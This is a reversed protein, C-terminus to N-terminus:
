IRYKCINKHGRHRYKGAMTDADTKYGIEKKAGLKRLEERIRMVDERDTWDYTYVCIVHNIKGTDKNVKVWRASAVKAKNGLSGNETAHKIKAWIEDVNEPLVFILWKGSNENDQPYTDLNELRLAYIWESRVSEDTPKHHCYPKAKKIQQERIKEHEKSAM